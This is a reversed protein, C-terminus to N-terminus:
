YRFINNLNNENIENSYNRAQNILLPSISGKSIDRIYLNNNKEGLNQYSVFDNIFINKQKMENIVREFFDIYKHFLPYQNKYHEKDFQHKKEYDSYLKELFINFDLRTEINSYKKIDPIEEKFVYYLKDDYGGGEINDDYYFGENTFVDYIQPLGQIPNNKLFLSIAVEINTYTHKMVINNELLYVYGDEGHGLIKKIPSGYLIAVEEPKLLDKM